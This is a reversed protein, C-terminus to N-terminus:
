LISYTRHGFSKFKTLIQGHSQGFITVPNFNSTLYKVLNRFFLNFIQPLIWEFTESVPGDGAKKQPVIKYMLIQIPLYVLVKIRVYAPNSPGTESEVSKWPNM